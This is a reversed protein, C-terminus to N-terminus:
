ATGGRAPSRGNWAAVVGEITCLAAASSRMRLPASMTSSSHQSPDDLTQAGELDGGARRLDERGGPRRRLPPVGAASRDPREGSRHALARVQCEPTARSSRPLPLINEGSTGDAAVRFAPRTACGHGGAASRALARRAPVRDRAPGGEMMLAARELRPRRRATPGSSSMEGADGRDVPDDLGDVPLHIHGVTCGASHISYSTPLCIVM